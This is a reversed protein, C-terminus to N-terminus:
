AAKADGSKARRTVERGVASVPVDLYRSLKRRVKPLARGPTRSIVRAIDNGWCKWLRALGEISGGLAQIMFKQEDATLERTKAEERLSELMQRVPESMEKRHNKMVPM